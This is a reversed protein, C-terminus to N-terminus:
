LSLYAQMLTAVRRLNLGPQLYVLQETAVPEDRREYFKAMFSSPHSGSALLDILSDRGSAVSSM